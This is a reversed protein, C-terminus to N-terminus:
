SGTFTYSVDYSRKDYVQKTAGQRTNWHWNPIKKKPFSKSLLTPPSQPPPQLFPYPCRRVTYAHLHASQEGYAGSGGAGNGGGGGYAPVGSDYAGFTSTPAPASSEYASTTAAPAPPVPAPPAFAGGGAPEPASFPNDFGGDGTNGATAQM